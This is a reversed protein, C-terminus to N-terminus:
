RRAGPGGYSSQCRNSRELRATRQRQEQRGPRVYDPIRTRAHRHSDRYSRDLATVTPRRMLHLRRHEMLADEPTLAVPHVSGAEACGIYGQTRAARTPGRSSVAPSHCFSWLTETTHEHRRPRRLPRHPSGIVHHVHYLFGHKASCLFRQLTGSTFRRGKPSGTPRLHLRFLDDCAGFRGLAHGVL